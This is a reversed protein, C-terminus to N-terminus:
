GTGWEAVARWPILPAAERTAPSVRKAAEGIVEFNRVIADHTREDTFFAEKGSRLM